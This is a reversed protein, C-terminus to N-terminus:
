NLKEEGWIGESKSNSHSEEGDPKKLAPFETGNMNTDKSIVIVTKVMNLNMDLAPGSSIVTM